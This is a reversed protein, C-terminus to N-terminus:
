QLSNALEVQVWMVGTVFTGYIDYRLYREFPGEDKTKVVRTM